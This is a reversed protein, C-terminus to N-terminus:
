QDMGFAFRGKRAEWFEANTDGDVSLNQQFSIGDIASAQVNNM